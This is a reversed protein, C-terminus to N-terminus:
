EQRSNDDSNTLEALIAGHPRYGLGTRTHTEIITFGAGDLQASLERVPWRYATIVAHDFPELTPAEFFGILLKGGPRLARAFEEFAFRIDGPDHHILSYWALIGAVSGSQADLNEARGDDFRCSPYTTRAHEVFTHTPDVGRVDVDHLHLHNTWQGPGCGVDIVPGAISRAWDTVLQKDSPHVMEMSGVVRVYEEARDAYSAEVNDM